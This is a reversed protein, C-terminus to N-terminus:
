LSQAFASLSGEADLGLKKKLRYRSVRLSDLTIGLLTAVQQTSLNMKILSLLKLENSTLDPQKQLLSAFFHPHVQNFALKYEEWYQDNNFSENVQQLLQKLQKKQDRKEDKLIGQLENKVTELVENKMMLQLLQSSLAQEKLTLKNVLVEEELKKNLLQAEIQSKEQEYAVQQLLQVKVQNKIKLQQRYYIAFALSGLLFLGLCLIGIWLLAVKQEAKLQSIASDKLETENLVEVLAVQRATEEAYIEQLMNRSGDLADYASDMRGLLVYCRAIDRLASQLQYKQGLHEAERYAKQAFALGQMIDGSKRFIDGLNNLVEPQADRYQLSDYIHYAASFYSFAEYYAEKDEQISGLNEYIRAIVLPDGSQRAYILAENQFIAASDTLERKELLFGLGGYSLAMGRADKQRTHIHLSEQLADAAKDPQQNYFYVMGLTQLIAALMTDEKSTRAGQEARLLFDLAQAYTGAAFLLKGIQHQFHVTRKPNNEAKAITLSDFYARLKPPTVQSAHLSTDEVIRKEQGLAGLTSCLVPLFFVVFRRFSFFKFM